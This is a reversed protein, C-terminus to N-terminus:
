IEEKVEAESESSSEEALFDDFISATGKKPKDLVWNKNLEKKVEPSDKLKKM